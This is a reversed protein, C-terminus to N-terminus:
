AAELERVVALGAATIAFRGEGDQEVLGREVFPALLDGGGDRQRRSSSAWARIEPLEDARLRELIEPLALGTV